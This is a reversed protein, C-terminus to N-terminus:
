TEQVHRIAQLRQRYEDESIVGEAFREALIREPGRPQRARLWPRAFRIVLWIILGWFVLQLAVAIPWFWMGGGDMMGGFHHSATFAQM